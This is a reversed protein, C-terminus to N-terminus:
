WSGSNVLGQGRLFIQVSSEIVLLDDLCLSYSQCKSKDVARIENNLNCMMNIYKVQISPVIVWDWQDNYDAGDLM